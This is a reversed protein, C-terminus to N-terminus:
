LQQKHFGYVSVYDFGPPAHAFPREGFNVRYRGDGSFAPSLFPAQIDVFATGNPAAFSGNVSASLTASGVSRMDVKFGIVDGVVWKSSYAESSGRHWKRLRTGDVAWSWADDGAGEGMSQVRQEFGQTCVGLQSVGVIDVVELEFYFCHGCLKIDAVFTNFSRFQLQYDSTVCGGGRHLNVVVYGSSQHLEVAAAHVAARKSAIILPSADAGRNLLVEEISAHGNRSAIFLPTVGDKSSKNVDAGLALLVEVVSLHGAQCAAFLPSAGDDTNAQDIDAGRALLAEVISTHGNQSAIFLPTTGNYTTAQKVDAGRALLLEVISSHGNFVAIFLPAVGSDTTAQNCDAGRSLLQEVISVHGKQCAIWLPTTGNDTTSQNFDASRALLAEVIMTHGAECSIFLPTGNKTSPQNVDADRALLMEVIASHCLFSAIFLPTTGDDTRCKNANAGRNLLAEVVTSRNKQCAIWLPTAGNDTRAQNVDAGRALLVGVVSFHGNFVAAFLPTSGFDTTAQNVNAGGDLLSEVTRTHGNESAICLPTTGNDTRSQNVDASQSLLAAVVSFHGFFSAIFLPSAGIDTRAQNICAGHALLAEVVSLHGAQCAAFLPSAGDTTKAQNIDAGRALLAELISVNDGSSAILLPTSGDNTTSQNVDAGLALLVEVVSLHGAQCAAFLPSAGDDTKAQNINAGAQALSKIVEVHGHEAARYMASIGNSGVAAPDARAAVLLKVDQGSGGSAALSMLPPEGNDNKENADTSMLNRVKCLEIAAATQDEKTAARTFRLRLFSEFSRHLILLSFGEMHHVHRSCDRLWLQLVSQAMSAAELSEAVLSRYVADDCYDEAARARHKKLVIEVKKVQDEIFGDVSHQKKWFVGQIDKDRKLRANAHGAIAVDHLRQRLENVRFEFGTIHMSKKKQLLEEVTETKLNLNVRVLVFTVLGGDVIEVRGAGPQVRQVFSCPVWLFEKEGPYQSFDSIDAGRDVSSTEIVMVMAKPRRHKVGSYGLAVDRDSSTSMM